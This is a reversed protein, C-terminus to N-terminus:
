EQLAQQTLEEFLAARYEGNAVKTGLVPLTLHQSQRFEELLSSIKNIPIRQLLNMKLVFKIIPTRRFYFAQEKSKDRWGKGYKANKEVVSMQDGADFWEYLLGPVDNTLRRMRLEEQKEPSLARCKAARKMDYLEPEERLRKTQGLTVKQSLTERQGLLAPSQILTVVTQALPVPKQGLVVPSQTLAVPIQGLTQVPAPTQTPAVPAQSPVQVNFDVPALPVVCRFGNMFTLVLQFNAANRQRDMANQQREAALERTVAALERTVAALQYQLLEIQRARSLETATARAQEQRQIAMYAVFDDLVKDYKAGIAETSNSRSASEKSPPDVSIPREASGSQSDDAQSDSAPRGIAQGLGQKATQWKAARARSEERERRISEPTMGLVKHLWVM